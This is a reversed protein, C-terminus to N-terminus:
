KKLSPDFGNRYTYGKSGAWIVYGGDGRTDIFQGLANPKSQQPISSDYKFLLHRGGSQTNTQITEPDSYGLKKFTEEGTKGNGNDIDIVFLGSVSGTPVGILANPHRNWYKEITDLDTTADKFGHPTLPSKNQKCPFVPFGFQNVIDIALEKPSKNNM